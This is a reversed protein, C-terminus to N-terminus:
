TGRRPTALGRWVVYGLLGISGVLLTAIVFPWAAISRRRADHVLWGVAFSCAIVLDLLVQLAWPEASVVAVLGSLGQGAVVWVSYAGFLALVALAALAKSRLAGTTATATFPAQSRSGAEADAPSTRSFPPALSTTTMRELYRHPRRAVM